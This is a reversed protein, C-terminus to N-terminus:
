KKKWKVYLTINGTSGKKIQTVKKTCKKDSYWGQFTYGKRTPKQLTITKTTVTYSAPNKKNNTGKNLNYTISYKTKKWKAYLTKAGTSGKSIQTLKKTCDKDSYWGEFSYGKRTPNQLTITKTTITYSAPNKKNNTGKNLNYTISYKTKKWQAYLTVKGGSKSSLNKIEAKNKYTKGTGDKKTNWGAFSYGKRKFGNATLTYTKGYKCNKLQNTSGSTSGNGNFSVTYKNATWKAYLTKNGTSGKKIQTVKKTCDKDSYWGSFSYGKRTPDQLTITSTTATYSAPNSKNNTGGNLNYTITYSNKKWQAYLCILSSHDPNSFAAQDAYSKGSGDEKTNWGTFTYGTRTFPCKELKVSEKYLEPTQTYDGTYIESDGSYSVIYGGCGLFTIEYTDAEWKAYLTLNGTSGKPIEYIPNKFASDTYWGLFTFYERPQPDQLVITKTTATYTSPNYESNTGGNLEYTITYTPQDLLIYDFGNAVAYNHAYSNTYCYITLNYCDKFVDTGIHTVSKPITISVSPASYGIGWFAGEEISTVGDAITVSELRICSNFAYEGIVSVTSPISLSTAYQNDQFAARGINEVGEQIVISKAYLNCSFCTLPIEKINSPVTVFELPAYGFAWEGVEVTETGAFTFDKLKSNYFASYGIKTISSPFTIHELGSAEFLNNSIETLGEPLTISKLNTCGMFAKQGLYTVTSPINIRTLSSYGCFACDAITTLGEPLDISTINKYSEGDRNGLGDRAIKTVTHGDLQSPVIIDTNNGYYGLILATGDENLCYEFDNCIPYTNSTSYKADAAVEEALIDKSDAYGLSETIEGTETAETDSSQEEASLAADLESGPVTVPNASLASKSEEPAPLISEYDLLSVETSCDPVEESGTISAETSAPETAETVETSEATGIAEPTEAAECGSTFSDAAFVGEAPASLLITATLLFSISQKFIKM